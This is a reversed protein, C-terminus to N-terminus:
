TLAVEHLQREGLVVEVSDVGNLGRAMGWVAGLHSARWRCVKMNCSHSHTPISMLKPLATHNNNVIRTGAPAVQCLYDM